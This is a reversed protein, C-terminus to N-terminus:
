RTIVGGVKETMAQTISGTATSALVIGLGQNAAAYAFIGINSLNGVAKFGAGTKRWTKAELIAAMQKSLFSITSLTKEVMFLTGTEVAAQYMANFCDGTKQLEDYKSWKMGFLTGYYFCQTLTNAMCAPMGNQVAVNVLVNTAGRILGHNAASMITGISDDPHSLDDKGTVDWPLFQPYDHGLKKVEESKLFANPLVHHYEGIVYPVGTQNAVSMIEHFSHFGGGTLIGINSSVYEKLEESNLKTVIRAQLIASGIHGSPGAVFPLHYTDLAKVWPNAANPAFVGIVNQHLETEGLGVCKIQDAIGVTTTLEGGQPNVKIRIHNFLENSFLVRILRDKEARWDPDDSQYALKDFISQMFIHHIHLIRPLNIHTKESLANILTQIFHSQSPCFNIVGGLKGFHTDTYLQQIVEDTVITKSQLLKENVPHTLLDIISLSVKHISRMFYGPNELILSALRSEFCIRQERSTLM